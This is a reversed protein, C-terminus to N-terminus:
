DSIPTFACSQSQSGSQVKVRVRVCMGGCVCECGSCM